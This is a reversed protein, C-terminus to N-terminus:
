NAADNAHSIKNHQEIEQATRSNTASKKCGEVSCIQAQFFFYESAIGFTSCYSFGHADSACVVNLGHCPVFTENVQPPRVSKRNSTGRSGNGVKFCLFSQFRFDFRWRKRQPPEILWFWSNHCFCVLHKESSEHRTVLCKNCLLTLTISFIGFASSMGIPHRSLYLTM